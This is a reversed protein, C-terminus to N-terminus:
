CMACAAASTIAPRLHAAALLLPLATLKVARAAPELAFAHLPTWNLEYEHRLRPPLLAATALRHAPAILRIPVPLPARLIVAAVRRAPETVTITESTLQADFYSRFDGLHRPIVTEPVGFLRALVTMDQYYREQEDDTLAQQFRQYAALSAHVLTAHVWLMLDPDAASYATGAPFRGLRSRTTGIVRSHIAQVAAATHEAEAETGYTILYLARLTRGLRRWLDRHYDSHNAVGAAILPHAIQLLVAAGGGLFPTVPTNGVRRIISEPPFYGDRSAMREAHSRQRPARTTPM